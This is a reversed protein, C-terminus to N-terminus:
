APVEAYIPVAMIFRSGAGNESEVRIRGGHRELVTRCVALGLGTGGRPGKTTFFPEFIRERLEVPVGHGTDRVELEVEAADPALRLEVTVTGDAPTADAANLVLNLLATELAKENGQILVPEPTTIVELHLARGTFTAEVLRTVREVLSRLELEGSLDADDSALGLLDRTVGMLRETHERLVSLDLELDCDPCTNRVEREMCEIRNGIIALPNNVEHALATAMVSAAALRESRRMQEELRSQLTADRLVLSYGLPQGDEDRIVSQSLNVPITRGGSDVRETRFDVVSGQEALKRKLYAAERSAGRGPARLLEDLPRGTVQAAEYGFLTEAGRNWVRVRGRVDLGIIADTSHALVSALEGYTEHLARTRETVLEELRHRYDTLSTAMGSFEGALDELEDNTTIELAPSPEGAALRRMAERLQYIPRTFQNAAVVALVLVLTALVVGVAGVWIMFRRVPAELTSLPVARYLYLPGMGYSGLSLPAYSLIQRDATLTGVHGAMIEAALDPSFETPLDVLAREALLSSWDRKRETHYLFFGEQDVLGTVGPLHPSGSELAAFLLSAYAEGVVAGRFAGSPSWLAMVIAVAPVTGKVVGVDRGSLEVPLLLQGGPELSRARYAYYMGSAQGNDAVAESGSARAVLLLAGDGDILKMQFLSGKFGMFAAAAAGAEALAAPTADALASSLHARALYAVNEEAERLAQEVQTRAMAVDHDLGWRATDRLQDVKVRTAFGAVVLLPIAALLVFAITLKSRITLRPFLKNLNLPEGSSDPSVGCRRVVVM